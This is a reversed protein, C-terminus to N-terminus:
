FASSPKSIYPRTGMILSRNERLFSMLDVWAPTAMAPMEPLRTDEEVEQQTRQSQHFQWKSCAVMDGTSTDVVKMFRSKPDEFFAKRYRTAIAADNEANRPERLLYLSIGSVFAARHIRMFDDLDSEEMPALQLAMDEQLLNRQILQTTLKYTM